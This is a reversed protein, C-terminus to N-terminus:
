VLLVALDNSTPPSRLEVECADVRLNELLSLQPGSQSPPSSPIYRDIGRLSLSRLNSCHQVIAGVNVETVDNLKLRELSNAGFKRLIPLIGDDFSIILSGLNFDRLNKLHLLAKLDEEKLKDEYHIEVHTVFPCLHIAAALEGRAYPLQNDNWKCHLDTLPLHHQGTGDFHQSSSFRQQGNLPSNANTQSM